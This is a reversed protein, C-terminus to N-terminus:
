SQVVTKYSMFKPSISLPYMPEMTELQMHYSSFVLKIFPFFPSLTPPCAPMPELAAACAFSAMRGTEEVM